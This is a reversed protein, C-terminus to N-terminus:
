RILGYAKELTSILCAKIIWLLGVEVSCIFLPFIFNYYVWWM